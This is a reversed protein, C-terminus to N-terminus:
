KKLRELMSRLSNQPLCVSEPQPTGLLRSFIEDLSDKKQPHTAQVSLVKNPSQGAQTQFNPPSSHRPAELASFLAGLSGASQTSSTSMARVGEIPDDTVSHAGVSSRQVASLSVGSVGRGVASHTSSLAPARLKPAGKIENKIANVIPWNQLAREEADKQKIEHYSKPEGAFERFLNKIDVNPSKEM